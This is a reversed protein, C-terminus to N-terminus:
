ANELPFFILENISDKNQDSTDPFEKKKWHSPSIKKGEERTFVGQTSNNM